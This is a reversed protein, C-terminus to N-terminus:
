MKLCKRIFEVFILSLNKIDTANEDKRINIIGWGGFPDRYLSFWLLSNKTQSFKYQSNLLIYSNNLFAVLNNEPNGKDSDRILDTSLPENGFVAFLLFAIDDPILNLDAIIGQGSFIVSGKGQQPTEKNCFFVPAYQFNFGIASFLHHNCCSARAFIRLPSSKSLVSSFASNISRPILLPFQPNSKYESSLASDKSFKVNKCIQPVIDSPDQPSSSIDNNPIQTDNPEFLISEGSIKGVALVAIVTDPKCILPYQAALKITQSPLSTLNFINGKRYEGSPEATLHINVIADITTTDQINEKSPAVGTLLNKLPAYNPSSLAIIVYKFDAMALIKPDLRISQSVSFHTGSLNHGSHIAGNEFRNGSNVVVASHYKENMLVVCLEYPFRFTEGVAAKMQIPKACDVTVYLPASVLANGPAIHVSKLGKSILPMYHVRMYLFTLKNPSPQTKKLVNMIIMAQGEVIQHNRPDIKGIAVVKERRGISVMELHLCIGRIPNLFHVNTNWEPEPGSKANTQFILSRISGVSFVKLVLKGEKPTNEGRTVSVGFIKSRELDSM